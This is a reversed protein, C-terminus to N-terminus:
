CFIEKNVKILCERIQHIFDDANIEQAPESCRAPEKVIGIEDLTVYMELILKTPEQAKKNVAYGTVGKIEMGDLYVSDGSIRLRNLEM